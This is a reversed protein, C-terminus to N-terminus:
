FTVHSHYRPIYVTNVSKTRKGTATGLSTIADETGTAAVNQLSSGAFYPRVQVLVAVFGLIFIYNASKRHKLFTKYYFTYQFNFNPM